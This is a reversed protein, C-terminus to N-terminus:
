DLITIEVDRYNGPMAIYEDTHHDGDVFNRFYLLLENRNFKRKLLFSSNITQYFFHHLQM